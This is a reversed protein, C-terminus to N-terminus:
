NQLLLTKLEGSDLWLDIGQNIITQLQHYERDDAFSVYQELEARDAHAIYEAFELVLNTKRPYNGTNQFLNEEFTWFLKDAKLKIEKDM